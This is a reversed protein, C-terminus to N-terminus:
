VLRPAAVATVTPPHEDGLLIPSIMPKSRPGAEWM